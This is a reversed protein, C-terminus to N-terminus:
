ITLDQEEKITTAQRLIETMVLVVLAIILSEWDVCQRYSITITDIYLLQSAFYHRGLDWLTSVSALVIFWMGIHNLLKIIGTEFAKAHSLRIMIKAFIVAIVIYIVIIALNLTTISIKLIKQPTTLPTFEKSFEFASINNSIVVISDGTHLNVNNKEPLVLAKSNINLSIFDRGQLENEAMHQAMSMGEKWGKSFDSLFNMASSGFFLVLLIICLIKLRKM